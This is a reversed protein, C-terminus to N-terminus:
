KEIGLKATIGEYLKRFKELKARSQAGDEYDILINQKKAIKQFAPDELGSKFADHLVKIRDAPTGKPVALHFAVYSEVPYGEEACTPIDPLDSMRKTDMICLAKVQKSKTFPGAESAVLPAADVHGGLLAVKQPGGGGQPIMTFKVGFDQELQVMALHGTTGVAAVGAKVKEPNKRAYDMFEKMTNYPMTPYASLIRPINSLQLVPIYDTETYQLKKLAPQTVFPGWGNICITYGDPKANLAYTTGITGGGGPKNIVVLPRPFYNGMVSLLSRVLMDTGGGVGWPIIIKVPKTPYNDALSTLPLAVVAFLVVILVFLKTNPLRVM